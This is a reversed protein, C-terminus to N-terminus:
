TLHGRDAEMSKPSHLNTDSGMGYKVLSGASALWFVLIKPLSDPRSLRYNKTWPIVPVNELRKFQNIM